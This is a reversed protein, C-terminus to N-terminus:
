LMYRKYHSYFTKVGYELTDSDAYCLLSPVDASSYSYFWHDFVLTNNDLNWWPYYKNQNKDDWDLVVGNNLAKVIIKLEEFVNKKGFEKYFEEETIGCAICAEALTSVRGSLEPFAILATEKLTEVGRNYIEKAIELTLKM